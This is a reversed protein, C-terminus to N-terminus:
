RMEDLILYANKLSEIEAERRRVREIYASNSEGGVCAPKLEALEQMAESKLTRHDKLEGKADDLVGTIRTIDRKTSAVLDEKESLESESDSKYNNYDSDADAEQDQTDHITREFDSKIVELQAMIGSAAAQNGPGPQAHSESVQLLSEYFDKLIQMAKRVGALGATAERETVENQHHETTRLETAENIGKRLMSIEKLLVAVEENKQEIGATNETIRATDGEVAGINEDRKGTAKGMEADCWQKQDAEDSADAELKSVMDKIMGRVKVFHDEQMRLALTSLNNSNLAKAQKKLYEFMKRTIGKIHMSRGRLQVFSVDTDDVEAGAEADAADMDVDDSGSSAEVESDEETHADEDSDAEANAVENSGEDADMEAVEVDSARTDQQDGQTSAQAVASVAKSAEVDAVWEWHGHTKHTGVASSIITKAVKPKAVALAALKQKTTALAANPAVDSKLASLAGAIATIESTRSKSREDWAVAKSECNTTLDDLFAQDAAKDTETKQLDKTALQMDEGKNAAQEEMEEASSELAKIQNMRAGQAMTFEHKIRSEEADRADLRLKITKRMDVITQIIEASDFEDSGILAALHQVSVFSARRFANSRSAAHVALAAATQVLSSSTGAKIKEIAEACESVSQSLDTRELMYAAFTKDRVEQEAHCVKKLSEVQKRSAFVEQNAKTVEADLAKIEAGLLATHESKTKISYQKEDSQEKCFCAFKDYSKAEVQGEEITQERLRTLLKMVSEVPTIAQVSIMFAFCILLKIKMVCAM